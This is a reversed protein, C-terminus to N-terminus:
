RLSTNVRPKLDSMFSGFMKDVPDFDEEEPAAGPTRAAANSGADASSHTNASRARANASGARAHTASYGTAHADAGADSANARAEALLEALAEPSSLSATAVGARGGEAIVRPIYPAPLGRQLAIDNASAFVQLPGTVDLLQADAFALVHITKATTSM